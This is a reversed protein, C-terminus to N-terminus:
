QQAATQVISDLRWIRARCDGSGTALFEGSPSSAVSIVSNKHGQLILQSQGTKVDWLQVSRDKSGSLVHKGDRSFAM